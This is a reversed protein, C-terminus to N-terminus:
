SDSAAPLDKVCVLLATDIGRIHNEIWRGLEAYTSRVLEWSMTSVQWREYFDGFMAIFEAHAERNTQAVPCRYEDMCKEEREFHWTSYFQLFDLMEGAAVRDAGSGRALAVSLENYREIIEQHQADIQPLGTSMSDDWTIM